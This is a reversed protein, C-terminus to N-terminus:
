LVKKKNSVIQESNIGGRAFPEHYMFPIEKEYEWLLMNYVDTPIKTKEFGIETFKPVWAKQEEEKTKSSLMLMIEQLSSLRLLYSANRRKFAHGVSIYLAVELCQRSLMWVGEVCGRSVKWIYVLVPM